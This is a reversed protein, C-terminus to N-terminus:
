CSHWTKHWIDLQRQNTNNEMKFFLAEVATATLRNETLELRSNLFLIGGGIECLHKSRVSLSYYYYWVSTIIIIFTKASTYM